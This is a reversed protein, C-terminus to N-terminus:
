SGVAAQPDATVDTLGAVEAVLRRALQGLPSRASRGPPDGREAAVPLGPDDALVGWLDLGVGEAVSEPDLLRSRGSRVVLGPRVGAGSLEAVRERGAAVGRLDDRVVVLWNDVATAAVELLEGGLHRPVDLVGLGTGGTMAGLVARLAEPAPLVAEGGRGMSLVDVGDVCPLQDGLGGLHGRAGALRSWRWGDLREAGVLLDLGGGGQDLDVLASREGARAAAVALAAALTSTGVGGSGGTVCLSQGTGTPRQSLEAIAGSLWRANAPVVVVAAGLPASWQYAETASTTESLLYVEARRGLRLEAVVPAQDVGVLVMSASGWRSRLSGPDSIVEAELGAAAVVSLAHDLLDPDATSVVITPDSSARPDM